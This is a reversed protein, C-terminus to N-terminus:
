AVDSMFTAAHPDRSPSRGRLSAASAWASLVFVFNLQAPASRDYRTRDARQQRRNCRRDRLHWLHAKSALERDAIQLEVQHLPLAENLLVGLCRADGSNFNTHAVKLLGAVMFSAKNDPDTSMTDPIAAKLNCGMMRLVRLRLM